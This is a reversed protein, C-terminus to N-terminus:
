RQGARLRYFLDLPSPKAVVEYLGCIIQEVQPRRAEDEGVEILMFRPRIEDLDLGRL